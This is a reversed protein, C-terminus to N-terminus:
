TVFDQVAEHRAFDWGLRLVVLLLLLLLFHINLVRLRRHVDDM